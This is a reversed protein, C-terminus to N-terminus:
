LSSRQRWKWRSHCKKCLGRSFHPESSTGCHQCERFGLKSWEGPKLRRAASAKKPERGRHHHHAHGDHRMVILNEPRNDDRVGNIHHVHEKSGLKRGLVQEMVIRHEYKYDDETMVQVYGRGGRRSKHGLAKRRRTAAHKAHQEDTWPKRSM